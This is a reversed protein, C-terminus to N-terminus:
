EAALFSVKNLMSESPVLNEQRMQEEIAKVFGDEYKQIGSKPRVSNPFVDRLLNKFTATDEANWMRTGLVSSIARIVAEEEAGKLAFETSSALFLL